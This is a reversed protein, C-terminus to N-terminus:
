DLLGRRLAAVVASTRDSVGLREYIKQLHTKVTASSLHLEAAIEPTSMGQAVFSLIELERQSLKPRALAGRRQLERVLGTQLARSVIAEGAAVTAVADLIEDRDLEKSVYGAAGAALTEYVLEDEGYASLILIRTRLGEATAAAVVATGTMGTMRVDVVAVDPVLARIQELAHSGDTVQGVLELSPREQVAGAISRLFLPHDDALLVRIRPRSEMDQYYGHAADRESVVV